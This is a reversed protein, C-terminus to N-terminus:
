LYSMSSSNSVSFIAWYLCIIWIVFILYSCVIQSYEPQILFVSLLGVSKKLTQLICKLLYSLHTFLPWFHFLTVVVHIAGWTVQSICPSSWQFFPRTDVVIMWKQIIWCNNISCKDSCLQGILLIATFSVIFNKM